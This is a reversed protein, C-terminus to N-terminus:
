RPMEEMYGEEKELAYDDSILFNIIYEKLKVARETKLRESPNNNVYKVDFLINWDPIVENARVRLWNFMERKYDSELFLQLFVIDKNDLLPSDIVLEIHYGKKTEYCNVTDVTINAFHKLLNLKRAIRRALAKVDRKSDIDIKLMYRM